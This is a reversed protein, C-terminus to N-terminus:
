VRFAHWLQGNISIEIDEGNYSNFHHGYGDIGAYKKAVEYSHKAMLQGLGAYAGSAQMPEVAEVDIDLIDAIFWPAFSGLIYTDSLLEDELIDDIYDDDIFRCDGAEIDTEGSKIEENLQQVDASDLSLDQRLKTLLNTM